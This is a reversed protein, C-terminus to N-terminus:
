ICKIPKKLGKEKILLPFFMIFTFYGLNINNNEKIKHIILLFSPLFIISLQYKNM